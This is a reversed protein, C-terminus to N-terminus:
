DNREQISIIGQNNNSMELIAKNAINSLFLNGGIFIILSLIIIMLINKTKFSKKDM